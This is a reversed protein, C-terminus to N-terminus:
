RGYHARRAQEKIYQRRKATGIPYKTYHAVDRQLLANCDQNSQITEAGLLLMQKFEEEDLLGAQFDHKAKILWRKTWAILWNNIKIHEFLSRLTYQQEQRQEKRWYAAREEPTMTEYASLFSAHNM